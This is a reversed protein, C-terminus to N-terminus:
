AFADRSQEVIRAQLDHRAGAIGVVEEALRESVTRIDRDDVDLHRGAV